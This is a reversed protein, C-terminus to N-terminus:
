HIGCGSDGRRDEFGRSSLFQRRISRVPLNEFRLLICRFVKLSDSLAAIEIVLAVFDEYARMWLKLSNVLLVPLESSSQNTDVFQMASSGPYTGPASTFMYSFAVRDGM